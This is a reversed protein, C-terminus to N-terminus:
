AAYRVTKVGQQRCPYCPRAVRTRAIERTQVHELATVGESLLSWTRVQQERLAHARSALDSATARPLDLLIADSASSM